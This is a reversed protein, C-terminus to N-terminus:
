RRDIDNAPMGAEQVGKKVLNSLNLLHMNCPNGEYWVSCIGVQPKKLDEFTLGTALLMAQSAGQIAPQTLKGSYKNLVSPQTATATPM